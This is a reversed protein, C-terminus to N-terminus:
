AGVHDKFGIQFDLFNKTYRNPKPIKIRWGYEPTFRRFFMRSHFLRRIFLGRRIKPQDSDFLMMGFFDSPNQKASVALSRRM